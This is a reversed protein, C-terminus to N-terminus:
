EELLNLQGAIQHQHRANAILAASVASEWGIFRQVHGGKPGWAHIETEARDWVGPENDRVWNAAEAASRAIVSFEARAVTACHRSSNFLVVVPVRYFGRTLRQAARNEFRLSM